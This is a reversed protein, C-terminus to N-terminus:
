KQWTYRYGLALAALRCCSFNKSLQFFQVCVWCLAVEDGRSITRVTDGSYLQKCIFVMLAIDELLRDLTVTLSRWRNEGGNSAKVLVHCLKLNDVHQLHFCFTGPNGYHTWERMRGSATLFHSLLADSSLLWRLVQQQSNWIGQTDSNMWAIVMKTLNKYYFFLHTYFKHAM